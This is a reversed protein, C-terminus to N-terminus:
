EAEGPPQPLVYGQRPNEVVQARILADRDVREAKLAAVKARLEIVEAALAPSAAFLKAYAAAWLTVKIAQNLDIGGTELYVRGDKSRLDALGAIQNRWALLEETTPRDTM